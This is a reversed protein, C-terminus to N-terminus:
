YKIIYNMVIYPPMYTLPTGNGTYDCTIGSTNAAVTLGAASRDSTSAAAIDSANPLRGKSGGTTPKYTSFGHTHGADTVSHDHGPDIIEHTHRPLHQTAIFLMKSGGTKGLTDFDQDAQKLGVIAVSCVNPINFTTAGDGAGYATGIANWLSAYETRSVASGDCLLYGSPAKHAAFPFVSGVPVFPGYATGTVSIDGFNGVSSNINKATITTGTVNGTLNGTVNGCVDGAVHGTLNGAVDGTVNGVINGAIDGTVNGTLNGSVNGKVDGTVNGIVDGTVNGAVDGNLRATIMNAAFNGQGDRVVLSCPTNIACATTKQPTIAQDAIKDTIVAQNALDATQILAQSALVGATAVVFGNLKPNLATAGTTSIAGFTGISSTITKATITTGTVNGTLDGQVNGTVNGTLNGTVDGQVNGTLEGVVNGKVNGIANGHLNGTVNGRVDGTVNGTLNGTVDGTVDGTVNGHVNGTVNGTVDGTVTGQLNGTVSGTLNGTLNGIVTGVVNGDLNARITGAEFNNNADRSIITLPISLNTASTASNAVKGPAAISDIFSNPIPSAIKNPTISQDAIKEATVAGNKIKATTIANNAIHQTGISNSAIKAALIAARGIDKAEILTQAHVSGGNAKLFGSLRSDLKALGPTKKQQKQSLYKQPSPNSKAITESVHGVLILAGIIFRVTM